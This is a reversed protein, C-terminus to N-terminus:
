PEKQGIGIFIFKLPLAWLIGLLVYIILEVILSTRDLWDLITVALVVYIPLGLILVLLALIRRIRYSLKIL